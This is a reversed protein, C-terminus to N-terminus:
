GGLDVDPTRHPNSFEKGSGPVRQSRYAPRFMTCCAHSCDPEEVPIKEYEFKTVTDRTDRRRTKRRNWKVEGREIRKWARDNNKKPFSIRSFLRVPGKCIPCQSNGKSVWRCPVCVTTYNSPM